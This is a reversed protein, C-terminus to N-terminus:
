RKVQEDYIKAFQVYRIENVKAMLNRKVDKSLVEGDKPVQGTTILDIKDLVDQFRHGTFKAHVKKNKKTTVQRTFAATSPKTGGSDYHFNMPIDVLKPFSQDTGMLANDDQITSDMLTLDGSANNLTARINDGGSALM